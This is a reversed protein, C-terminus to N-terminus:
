VHSNREVFNEMVDFTYGNEKLFKILSEIRKFYHKRGVNLYTKDNFTIKDFKPMEEKSMEFPHLYFVYYNHKSIYQKLLPKFLGWPLLRMYGGGSIPINVGWFRRCVVEFEYFDDKKYIGDYIKDYGDVDIKGSHDAVVCTSKSADYLFGLEKLARVQEDQLSFFPARYGIVKQNFTRELVEKCEKTSQLFEDYSMNECPKHKLGHVAIKHGRAIYDFVKDKISLATELVFFLTARIGYKELLNLYEDLGDLMDVETEVHMKHVCETHKFSEADITFFALKKDSMM